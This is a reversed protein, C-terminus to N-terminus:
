REEILDCIKDVIEMPLDAYLPLSLVSKSIHNAIPTEQMDCKELYCDCTNVLPYFYKRPFIGERNLRTCVYDRDEGYEKEEIVIPMYAYNYEVDDRRQAIRVGPIKSLRKEYHEVRVRRKAILEDIHKLNCLGMAAHLESMKANSGISTISEEGTIGFNRLQHLKYGLEMNKIIVAGGEVTHFVKTAHFSFMSADGFNGIGIGEVKEGFAHAADYIVKLNHKKAIKRIGEVDCPYGYVHVALIATTKETILSEIKSSDMTFDSDKIDCFVPTLGNRVIAHSTSAFTYPTTIVEGSLNLGELVLELASHGNTFLMAYPVELYQKLQYELQNHLGGMNTLVESKWIEEIYKLYEEMPPIYPKTVYIPKKM